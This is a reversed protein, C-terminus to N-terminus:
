LLKPIIRDIEPSSAIRRRLTLGLDRQCTNELETEHM